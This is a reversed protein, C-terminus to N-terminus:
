ELPKETERRDRWIHLEGDLAAQIVTGPMALFRSGISSRISASTYIRRLATQRFLPLSARRLPGLGNSAKVRAPSSSPSLVTSPRWSSRPRLM